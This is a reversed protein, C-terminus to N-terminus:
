TKKASKKQALSKNKKAFALKPKLPKGNSFYTAKKTGGAKMTRWGDSRPKNQVVDNTRNGCSEMSFERELYTKLGDSADLSGGHHRAESTTPILSSFNSCGMTLAARNINKWVERAADVKGSVSNEKDADPVDQQKSSPRVSCWGELTGSKAAPGGKATVRWGVQM